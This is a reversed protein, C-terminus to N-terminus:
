PLGELEALLGDLEDQSLAAEPVDSPHARRRPNGPSASDDRPRDAALRSEAVIRTAPVLGGAIAEAQAPRRDRRGAIGRAPTMRGHPSCSAHAAFLSEARGDAGRATGRQMGSSRLTTPLESAMRLM